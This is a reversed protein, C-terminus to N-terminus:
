NSTSVAAALDELFAVAADCWAVLANTFGDAGYTALRAAEAQLRRAGEVLDEPVEPYLSLLRQHVLHLSRAAHAMLTRDEFARVLATEQSDEIVVSIRLRTVVQRLEERAERLHNRAPESEEQESPDRGARRLTLANCVEVATRLSALLSM